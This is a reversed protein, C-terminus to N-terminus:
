NEDLAGFHRPGAESPANLFAMYGEVVILYQPFNDLSSEKRILNLKAIRILNLKASSLRHSHM